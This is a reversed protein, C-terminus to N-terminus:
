LDSSQVTKQDNAETRRAANEFQKSVEENLANYFEDYINQDSLVDKVVPNVLLESM